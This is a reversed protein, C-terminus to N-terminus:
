SWCEERSACNHYLCRPGPCMWDWPLFQGVAAGGGRDGKRRGRGGGKGEKGDVYWGPAQWRGNGLGMASEMAEGLKAFLQGIEM